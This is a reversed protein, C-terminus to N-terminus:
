NAVVRGLCIEPLVVHAWKALDLQAFESQGVFRLKLIEVGDAKLEGGRIHCEYVTMVYTVRDGNSYVVEFDEGGFVGLISVPEVILGTEEFVERVVADAPKENPEISGGPAVWIDTDSHLALLIRGKEDFIAATVSPLM